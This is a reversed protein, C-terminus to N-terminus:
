DFHQDNNRRARAACRRHVSVYTDKEHTTAFSSFRVHHQQFTPDSEGGGGGDEVM